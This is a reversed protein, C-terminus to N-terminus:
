RPDARRRRGETEERVTPTRAGEPDKPRTWFNARRCYSDAAGGPNKERGRRAASYREGCRREAGDQIGGDADGVCEIGGQVCGRANDWGHGRKERGQRFDMYHTRARRDM